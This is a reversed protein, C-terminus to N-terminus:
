CMGYVVDRREWSWRRCGDENGDGHADGDGDLLGSVKRLM